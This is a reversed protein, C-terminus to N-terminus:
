VIGLEYRMEKFIAEQLDIMEHGESTFESKLFQEIQETINNPNSIFTGVNSNMWGMFHATKEQAIELKKVYEDLLGLMKEGAELRLGNIETKFTLFKDPLDSQLALIGQIYKM